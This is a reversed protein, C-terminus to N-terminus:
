TTNGDILQSQTVVELKGDRVRDSIGDILTVFDSYNMEIGGTAGTMVLKHGYFIVSGGAAIARDLLGLDSAPTYNNSLERAYLSYPADFGLSTRGNMQTVVLRGSRMGAARIASKSDLTANVIGGPYIYHYAGRDGLNTLIYDRNVIVDDTISQKTTFSADNHNKDGHVVMGWGAAYMEKLQALTVYGDTGVRSGIVGIDGILGRSAMYQYASTYQTIWGDDFQITVTPRMRHGKWIGHIRMTGGVTGGASTATIQITNFTASFSESGAGVFTNTDPYMRFYILGEGSRNAHHTYTATMSKSAFGDSSLAFRLTDNTTFGSVIEAVLLWPGGNDTFSWSGSVTATATNAASGAAVVLDIPVLGYSSVVSGVSGTGGGVGGFVSTTLDAFQVGSAIFGTSQLPRRSAGLPM